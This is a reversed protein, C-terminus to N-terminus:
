PQADGTNGDDFLEVNLLARLLCARIDPGAPAGCGNVIIVVAGGIASGTTGSKLDYKKVVAMIADRMEGCAANFVHPPSGYSDITGPM